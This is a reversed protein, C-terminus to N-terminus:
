TQKSSPVCLSVPTICIIITNYSIAKRLVILYFVQFSFFFVHISETDIQM